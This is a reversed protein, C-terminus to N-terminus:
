RVIVTHLYFAIWVIPACLGIIIPVVYETFPVEYVLVLIAARLRALQLEVGSVTVQLDGALTDPNNDDKRSNFTLTLGDKVAVINKRNM